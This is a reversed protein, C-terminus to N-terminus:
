FFDVLLKLILYFNINILKVFSIVSLFALKSNLLYNMLTKLLFILSLSVFKKSLVRFSNSGASEASIM